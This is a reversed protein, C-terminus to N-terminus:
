EPLGLTLLTSFAHESKVNDKFSLADVLNRASAGRNWYRLQQVAVRAEDMHGQDASTIALLAFFPWPVGYQVRTINFESMSDEYRKVSRYGLGEFFLIPPPTYPELRIAQRILPLASDPRGVFVLTLGVQAVTMADNPALAVAKEGLAVAETHNGRLLSLMSLLIHPGSASPDVALAKRALEIARAREQTRDERWGRTSVSNHTYGLLHWGISYNPDLEVAKEFLRRAEANKELTDDQYLFLGQQVLQYAEANKTNGRVIRARAEEVLGVELATVVNLTIEDQVSTANQLKRDYSEGWLTLAKSADILRATIRVQEGSRVVSGELVYRAGLDDAVQQVDVAKDKYPLTSAGAIVSRDPLQLLAATVTEGVDNLIVESFNDGSLNNFPLVAISPKDPPPLPDVPQVWPQWWAIGGTAAIIFALATAVTPLKWRKTRKSPTVVVKGAAAPNTLVRYAQVPREINKVQQEGLGEFGVALKDRVQEFASGSICIGGPDALGELRAAVNVGDGYIDDDDIIVDGLNVGIRFTIRKSDPTDATRGVMNRQISVACEVADVVSGFEVLAGDGMLKVIRGEHEAITPDILQSRLEKLATLTGTEDEGMLRSYGVVDAALIAALRRQVREEAM